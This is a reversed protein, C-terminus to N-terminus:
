WSFSFFQDTLQGCCFGAVHGSPCNQLFSVVAFSNKYWCQNLFDNVLQKNANFLKPFSVLSNLGKSKCLNILFHSRFRCILNSCNKSCRFSNALISSRSDNRCNWNWVIFEIEWLFLDGCLVADEAIRVYSSQYSYIKCGRSGCRYLM